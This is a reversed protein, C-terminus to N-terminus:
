KSMKKLLLSLVQQEEDSLVEKAKSLDVGKAVQKVKPEYEFGTKFLKITNGNKDTAVMYKFGKVDTELDKIKLSTGTKNYEVPVTLTLTMTKENLKFVNKNETAKVTTNKATKTETNISKKTVSMINVM